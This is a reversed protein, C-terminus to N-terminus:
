GFYIEVESKGTERMWNLISQLFQREEDLDDDCTGGSTVNAGEPLMEKIQDLLKFALNEDLQPKTDATVYPLSDLAFSIEARTFTRSEGVGSCGGYLDEAGLVLYLVKNNADFASRRFQGCYVSECYENYRNIWDKSGTKDLNLKERFAAQQEDTVKMAMVDHGM